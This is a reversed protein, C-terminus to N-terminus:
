VGYKEKNTIKNKLQACNPSCCYLNNNSYSKIYERYPKISINGCIDCKVEIKKHSTPLINDIDIEYCQNNKINEIFNKYYNFNRSNIKIIVKKSIIM